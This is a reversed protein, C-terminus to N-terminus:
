RVGGNIVQSSFMIPIRRRSMKVCPVNPVKKDNMVLGVRDFNDFNMELM